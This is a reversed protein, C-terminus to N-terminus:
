PVQDEFREEISASNCFSKKSEAEQRKVAEMTQTVQTELKKVHTAVADYKTNLNSFLTDMKEYMEKNNRKQGDMIQQLIGEFRGGQQNPPAQNPSSAYPEKPPNFRQEYEKGQSFNVEKLNTLLDKNNHIGRNDLALSIPARLPDKGAFAM